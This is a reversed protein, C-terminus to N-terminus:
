FNKFKRICDFNPHILDFFDSESCSMKEPFYSGYVTIDLENALSRINNEIFTIRNLFENNDVFQHPHFPSLVFYLQHNTKLRKSLDILLKKAEREIYYHELKYNKHPSADRNRNLAAEIYTNAYVHSGDPLTVPNKYGSRWDFKPAQIPTQLKFEPLSNVGKDLLLEFSANIYEHNFINFIKKAFLNEHNKLQTHGLLASYSFFLNENELWRADTNFKLMWPDIALFIQSQKKRDLISSYIIIDELSAGSVGLNVLSKCRNSVWSEDRLSLQMVRSSGVAYCDVNAMKALAIKVGREQKSSILGYDSNLVKNAFLNLNANEYIKKLYIKEADIVTSLFIAFCTFSLLIVFYHRTLKKGLSHKNSTSTFSNM